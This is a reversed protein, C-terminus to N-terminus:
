IEDMIDNWGGFSIIQGQIQSKLLGPLTYSKKARCIGCLSQGGLPNSINERHTTFGFDSPSRIPQGDETFEAFLKFEHRSGNLKSCNPCSKWIFRRSERNVLIYVSSNLKNECDSCKNLDDSRM